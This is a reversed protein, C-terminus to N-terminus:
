ARACCPMKVERISSALPALRRSTTSEPDKSCTKSAGIRSVSKNLLVRMPRGM